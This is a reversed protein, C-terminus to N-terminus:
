STNFCHFLISVDGVIFLRQFHIRDSHPVEDEGRLAAEFAFFDNQLDIVVIATRRLDIVVNQPAAAIRVPQPAPPPASMDVEEATALWHTNPSKGLAGKTTISTSPTTM